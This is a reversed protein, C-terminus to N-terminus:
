PMGASLSVNRAVSSALGSLFRIVILNPISKGSLTLSISNSASYFILCNYSAFPLMAATQVAYLGYQKPRSSLFITNRPLPHIHHKSLYYPHTSQLFISSYVIAANLLLLFHFPSLNDGTSVEHLHLRNNAQLLQHFNIQWVFALPM